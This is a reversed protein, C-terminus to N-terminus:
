ASFYLTPGEASDLLGFKAHRGKCGHTTFSASVEDTLHFWRTAITGGHQSFVLALPATHPYKRYAM